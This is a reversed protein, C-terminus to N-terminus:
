GIKGTKQGLKQTACLTVYELIRGKGCRSDPGFDEVSNPCNNIKAARLASISIRIKKAGVHKEHLKICIRTMLKPFRVM